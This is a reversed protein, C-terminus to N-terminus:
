WIDMLIDMRFIVECKHDKLCIVHSPAPKFNPLIGKWKRSNYVHFDVGTERCLSGLFRNTFM